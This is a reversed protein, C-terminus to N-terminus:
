ASAVALPLGLRRWLEGTVAADNLSFFHLGPAGGALLREALRSVVDLGFARLSARDDGYAELRRSLWRPIEIGHVASFRALRTFDRIPMIGPVIPVAVGAAQSRAVFDEYADANFFYQTIAGTAGAAVKARFHRLDSDASSAQPHCETHAAVDLHFWNGTEARVFAVLESAHGFDGCDGLGSLPDGRLVVLRQIGWERYRLLLGRVDERRAGVASLHPVACWGSAQLARVTDLTAGRTAGGAGYTVSLFDPALAAFSHLARQLRDAAAPTAPPFVEISFQRSQNM